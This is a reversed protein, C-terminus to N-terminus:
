RKQYDEVCLVMDKHCYPCVLCTEKQKYRTPPHASDNWCIQCDICIWFAERNSLDDWVEKAKPM